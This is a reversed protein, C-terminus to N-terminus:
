YLHLVCDVLGLVDLKRVNKLSLSIACFCSFMGRLYMGAHVVRKHPVRQGGQWMWRIPFAQLEGAQARLLLKTAADQVAEHRTEALM